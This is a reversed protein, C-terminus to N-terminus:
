VITSVNYSLTPNSVIKTAIYRKDNQPTSRRGEQMLPQSEIKEVNITRNAVHECEM